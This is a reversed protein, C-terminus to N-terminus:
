IEKFNCFLRGNKGSHSPPHGSTDRPEQLTVQLFSRYFATSIIKQRYIKTSVKTDIYNSHVMTSFTCSTYHCCETLVEVQVTAVVCTWWIKKMLLYTMKNSVYIINKPWNKGFFKKSVNQALFLTASFAPISSLHLNFHYYSHLPIPTKISSNKKNWLFYANLKLNTYKM